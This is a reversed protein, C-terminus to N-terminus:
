VSLWVCPDSLGDIDKGKVGSARVLKVRLQVRTEANGVVRRAATEFAADRAEDTIGFAGQLYEALNPVSAEPVEPTGVFAALLEFALMHTESTVDVSDAKDRALPALTGGLKGFVSDTM